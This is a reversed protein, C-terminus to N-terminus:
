AMTRKARGGRGWGTVGSERDVEELKGKEM